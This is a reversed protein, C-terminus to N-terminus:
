NAIDPFYLKRCEKYDESLQTLPESRQPRLINYKNYLRQTEDNASQSLTSSLLSLCLTYDLKNPSNSRKSHNVSLIDEIKTILLMSDRLFQSETATAKGQQFPEFASNSHAALRVNSNRPSGLSQRDFSNSRSLELKCNEIPNINEKDPHTTKVKREFDYNSNMVPPFERFMNSNLNLSRLPIRIKSDENEDYFDSSQPMADLVVENCFANISFEENGEQHRM